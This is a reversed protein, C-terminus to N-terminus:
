CVKKRRRDGGSAPERDLLGILTQASRSICRPQRERAACPHAQVGANTGVGSSDGIFESHGYTRKQSKKSFRKRTTSSSRLVGYLRLECFAGLAFNASNKNWASPHIPRVASSRVLNMASEDSRDISAGFAVLLFSIERKYFCMTKPVASNTIASLSM